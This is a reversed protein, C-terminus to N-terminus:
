PAPVIHMGAIRRASDFSVAIGITRHKFETAVIVTTYGDRVVSKSDGTDHFAGFRETMEHWLRRLKPPPAAQKMQKTFTAESANFEGKALEHVFGNAAATLGTRTHSTALATVPVFIAAALVSAILNARTHVM